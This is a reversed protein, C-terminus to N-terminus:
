PSQRSQKLFALLEKESASSLHLAQMILWFQFM